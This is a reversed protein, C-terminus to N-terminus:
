TTKNVCGGCYCLPVADTSHHLSGTSHPNSHQGTSALFCEVLRNSMYFNGISAISIMMSVRKSLHTESLNSNVEFCILLFSDFVFSIHPVPDTHNKYGPHASFWGAYKM